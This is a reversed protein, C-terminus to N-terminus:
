QSVGLHNLERSLQCLACVGCCQVVCFDNCLSGQINQQARLKIRLGLLAGPCCTAFCCGEGMRQSVDCLLICPCFWGMCLSYCDEFCGCLGTSWDRMGQQLVMTPQTVVVTTNTSQMPAPQAMVPQPYGPQAPPYGPQAPPYGQQAPPYGQQPPPQQMGYSPPAAAGQGESMYNYGVGPKESM